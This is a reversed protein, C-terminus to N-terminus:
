FMESSIIIIMILGVIIPWCMVIIVSLVYGRVPVRDEPDRTANKAFDALLVGFLSATIVGYTLWYPHAM